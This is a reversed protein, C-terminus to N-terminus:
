TGLAEHLRFRVAEALKAEDIQVAAAIAAVQEDTLMLDLAALAGLIADESTNVATGIAGVAALVKAEDDLLGPLSNTITRVRSFLLDVTQKPSTTGQVTFARYLEELWRHEEPTVDPEEGEFLTTFTADTMQNYDCFGISVVNKVCGSQGNSCQWVAPPDPWAAPKTMNKLDRYPHSYYRAWWGLANGPIHDPDGMQDRWFYPFTYFLGRGGLAARVREIWQDSWAVIEAPSQNNHAEMDLIFVDAQQWGAATVVRVFHEVQDALSGDPYGYHYAGRPLDAAKAAQWRRVFTQDVFSRGETAKLFIFDEGSAKYGAADFASQWHSIDAGTRM